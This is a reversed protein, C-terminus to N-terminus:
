RTEDSLLSTSFKHVKAVVKVIDFRQLCAIWLTKSIGDTRIAAFFDDYQIM